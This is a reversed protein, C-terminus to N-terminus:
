GRHIMAFPENELRASSFYTDRLSPQAAAHFAAERELRGYSRVDKRICYRIQLSRLDAIITCGGHFTFEGGGEVPHPKEDDQLLEIILQPLVNGDPGIRNAIRVSRVEFTTKQKPVVNLGLYRGAAAGDPGADFYDQLWKHIDRRAQRSLRFVQERSKTYLMDQAFTRLAQMGQLLYPPLVVEGEEPGSWLLSEESLARLDRSYIGRRRFAEIFAVRYHLDDDEVLDRDATILARLYEGFTLDLPPCYDLARICIGLVHTATKAVEESLREVLDPHLAGMPLVGSGGTSLRLLDATRTEYISLFADFVAAV